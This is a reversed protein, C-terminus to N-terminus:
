CNDGMRLRATAAAPISWRSSPTGVAGPAPRPEDVALPRGFDTDALVPVEGSRALRSASDQLSKKYAGSAPWPFCGARYAARLTAVDLRGGLAVLERAAGAVDLREFFTEATEDSRPGHHTVGRNVAM